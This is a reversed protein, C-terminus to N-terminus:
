LLGHRRRLFWETGLLLVVAAILPWGALLDLRRRQRDGVGGWDLALLEQGLAALSGPEALDHYSGGARAALQELRSRDQRVQASEVSTDTVLVEASAGAVPPDGRGRLRVQYRGPAPPPVEVASDGPQGPVATMEFTRVATTDAAPGAPRMELEPVRDTVPEGRLDRWRATVRLPQGEQSAGPRTAFQLGGGGDGAALWVLLNRLLGRAPQEQGRDLGGPREWFAWEWVPGVGFWAVRGQGQEAVVLAPLGAPEGAPVAELLVAAGERPAVRSVERWPPLAALVNGAGQMALGDFVPHASGEATPAAFRPGAERRWPQATVPLLRALAAPPGAPTSAVSPLVLVGLGAEVAGSLGEWDIAAEPGGWGTVVVADWRGWGSANRPPEWPQLSDALVLGRPTPYATTLALRPESSAAVALFRADWGPTGALVLVRLRDRRVDVVFTVANNGLFRENDLPAAELRLGALGEGRPRFRLRAPTIAGTAQVTDAAVLGESDRLTVIVPSPRSATAPGGRASGEAPSAAGPSEVITFDVAVDQGLYAAEPHRVDVVARDALDAGPGVGVMRLPLAAVANAAAAAPAGRETEAGDSALVVARVPRGALEERLRRALATFSTGHRSPPAVVADRPSFEQLPQLGNGRLWTRRVGPHAQAVLSDVASLAALSAQWRSPAATDSAAAALAMSASDEVVLVLEAPQVRPQLCSAVPGAVAAVLLALAAARLSTLLRRLGRGPAPETRRYTLVSFVIAGAAVVLLLPWM